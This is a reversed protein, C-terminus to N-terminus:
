VVGFHYENHYIPLLNLSGDKIVIKRNEQKIQQTVSHLETLDVNMYITDCPWKYQPTNSYTGIPPTTITDKDRWAEIRIDNYPICAIPLAQKKNNFYIIGQNNSYYSLMLDNFTLTYFTNPKLGSIYLLNMYKKTPSYSRESTQTFAENM